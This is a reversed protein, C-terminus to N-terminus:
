MHKYLALFHYEFSMSRDWTSTGEHEVPMGDMCVGYYRLYRSPLKWDMVLRETSM